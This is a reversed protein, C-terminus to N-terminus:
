DEKLLVWIVAGKPHKYSIPTEYKKANRIGWAYRWKKLLSIDDVRHLIHLAAADENLIPRDASHILECEGVILGTGQEILYIKGRISTPSSRMEWTKKGSLILDIWPKRIILCRKM